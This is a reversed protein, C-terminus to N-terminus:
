RLAECQVPPGTWTWTRPESNTNQEFVRDPNQDWKKAVIEHGFVPGERFKFCCGPTHALNQAWKGAVIRPGDKNLIQPGSVHIKALESPIKAQHWTHAAAALWHREEQQCVCGARLLIAREKCTKQFQQMGSTVHNTAPSRQRFARGRWIPPPHCRLTPPGTECLNPDAAVHKSPKLVDKQHSANKKTM